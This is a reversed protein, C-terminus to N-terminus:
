NPTSPQKRRRSGKGKRHAQESAEISANFRRQAAKMAQKPPVTVVLQDLGQMSIVTSAQKQRLQAILDDVSTHTHASTPQRHQSSSSQQQSWQQQQPHQGRPPKALSMDKAPWKNGCLCYPSAIRNHYRRRGCGGCVAYTGRPAMWDLWSFSVIYAALASSVLVLLSACRVLRRHVLFSM